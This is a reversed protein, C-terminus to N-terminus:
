SICNKLCGLLILLLSTKTTRPLFVPSEDKSNHSVCLALDRRQLYGGIKQPQDVLFSPGNLIGSALLSTITQGLFTPIAYSAPFAPIGQYHISMYSLDSSLLHGTTMPQLLAVPKINLPLKSYINKLILFLLPTQPILCM